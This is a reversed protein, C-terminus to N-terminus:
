DVQRLARQNLLSFSLCLMFLVVAMASGYGLDFGRFATKYLQTGMTESAGVPGGQTMVWVLDFIQIAGLITLFATLRITRGLLPITVYRVQQRYSAGDVRAAEEIEAPIDQLGAIFLVLYIGFYKWVVTISVAIMVMDRDGLWAIPEFGPVMMGLTSNVLGDPRFLFTWTLAAIVESLVFPLFFLGRFFARGPYQSRLLLALAFALPLEVFVAAAAIM